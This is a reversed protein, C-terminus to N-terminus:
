LFEFSYAKGHGPALDRVYGPSRCPDGIGTRKGLAEISQGHPFLRDGRGPALHTRRRLETGNRGIRAQMVESRPCPVLAVLSAVKAVCLGEGGAYGEVGLERGIRRLGVYLGEHVLKIPPLAPCGQQDCARECGGDHERKSAKQKDAAKHSGLCPVAVVARGQVRGRDGPLSRKVEARRHSKLERGHRRVAGCLAFRKEDGGHAWM